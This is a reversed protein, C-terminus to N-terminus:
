PPYLFDANRNCILKSALRAVPRMANALSTEVESPITFIIMDIKRAHRVYDLLERRALRQTHILEEFIQGRQLLHRTPLEVVPRFARSHEMTKAFALDNTAFALKTGGCIVDDRARDVNEDLIRQRMQARMRHSIKEAATHAAHFTKQRVIVGIPTGHRM